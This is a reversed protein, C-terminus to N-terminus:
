SRMYSTFYMKLNWTKQYERDFLISCATSYIYAFTLYILKFDNSNGHKNLSVTCDWLPIQM